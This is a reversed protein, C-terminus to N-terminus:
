ARGTGAGRRPYWALLLVIFVVPLFSATSVQALTVAGKALYIATVMWDIAQIGIMARIWAIAAVPDRAAVVMGYGFGLFRAAMMGFLWGTWEPAPPLGFLRSTTAPAVLFAIGLVIQVIAIFWLTYALPKGSRM